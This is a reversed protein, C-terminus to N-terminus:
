TSRTLTNPFPASFLANVTFACANEALAFSFIAAAPPFASSSLHGMVFKGIDSEKNKAVSVCLIECFFIRKQTNGHSETAFRVNDLLNGM